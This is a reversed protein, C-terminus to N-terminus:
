PLNVVTRSKTADAWLNDFRTTADKSFSESWIALSVDDYNFFSGASWNHSGVVSLNDDIVLMKSHLLRAPQDFRVAIGASSLLEAAPKNIVSSQYPDSPRDADLLIKIDVGRKKANVLSDLLIATPHKASPLAMHFMAIRISSKANDFVDKLWYYYEKNSLVAIEECPKLEPMEASSGLREYYWNSQGELQARAVAYELIAVLAVDTKDGVRALGINILDALTHCISTPPQLRLSVQSAIALAKQKGIGKVRGTLELLNKYPGNKQREVVIQQALKPGIARLKALEDVPAINIMVRQIPSPTQRYRIDSEVTRYEVGDFETSAGPRYAMSLADHLLLECIGKVEDADYERPAYPPGGLIKLINEVIVIVKAYVNDLCIGSSKAIIDIGYVKAVDNWTFRYTSM